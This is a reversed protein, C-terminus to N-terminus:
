RDLQDRSVANFPVRMGTREHLVAIQCPSIRACGVEPLNMENRGFQKLSQLHGAVADFGAVESLVDRGCADVEFRERQVGFEPDAVRRMRRVPNRVGHTNISLNLARASPADSREPGPGGNRAPTIAMTVPPPSTTGPSTM